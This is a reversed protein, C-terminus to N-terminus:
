IRAKLPTLCFTRWFERSDYCRGLTEMSRPLAKVDEEEMLEYVWKAFESPEEDVDGGEQRVDAWGAMLAWWDYVFGDTLMWREGRAKDWLNANSTVALVARAVDVGHILHLSKKGRM